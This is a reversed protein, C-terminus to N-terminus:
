ATWVFYLHFTPIKLFKIGRGVGEAQPCNLILPALNKSITEINYQKIYAYEFFLYTHNRQM